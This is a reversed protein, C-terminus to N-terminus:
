FSTGIQFRFKEEIDSSESKLPISYSFSLPGVPTFWNASIGTSSRLSDVDLSQDYDVHWLNAADIFVSLDLNEYESIINPLNVSLNVATGYNGGIFQSGDKPGIKGSEFGRLRNSPIYVRKSVRVNEDDLSNVAKMFLKGSLIFNDKISKYSSFTYRNTITGEDSYIPFIQNFSSLYGDSPQFNRDLKNITFGYSLLNEFYDGEQKKKISSADKSTELKEYYTSFDLNLFLDTYQEFQTGVSFGTRSSKYGSASILDVEASELVLRLDKDSNRYNPSIVSFIGKIQDDSININTDLNIGKGLYNKEKIGASINTGSSGAGAGAFIEGTPKEEVNIEIIKFSKNNPSDEINTELSGFIGLSKINDLSKNFLIESYPDGEDIIFKNRLVKEETIFNGLIDIREVYFKEIEKFFINLDILNEDLKNVEYETNVFMFEKQLALKNIEILYKELKASSYKKGKLKNLKKNIKDFNEDQFDGPLLLKVENFYYKKGADILFILNFNGKKSLTAFSSKVDVDYYGNNIYFKKLLQEDLKVRNENLYKNSSLFKWFKSEESKIINRLKRSKFIKNGKFEVNSIMARENLNFKYAIDVSNNLNDLTEVKVEANYYGLNKIANILFDKQQNITNILFPSKEQKQTIKNLENLITKNKVGEIRINQIIPNEDVEINVTNNKFNLVVNKFYDTTYLKILASNLKNDDVKEKLSLESFIIITEDSIRENGTINFNNIIDSYANKFFFLIMLFNLSIKKILNYNIFM